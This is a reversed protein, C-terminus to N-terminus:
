RECVDYVAVLCSMNFPLPLAHRVDIRISDDAGSLMNLKVVESKPVIARDMDDFLVDRSCIEQWRDEGARIEGGISNYVRIKVTGVSKARLMSMGNQTEIEIPMPSLLSEYALGAVVKPAPHDLTVKGDEVVQDRHEAEDVLIDVTMGELHDLGSIETINEGEASVGSDVFFFHQHGQITRSELVEVTVKNNRQVAFYVKNENDGPLTCVSLFNGQTDHRHWGIVEQDREYTLAALTGNGLVCWLISDPLQQLAAEVIGTETIHDALVTMDPSSYGNKEWQFVFERVKRSGQQVFLITDGVMNASLGNSGYVSQRKVQFNSPTLAHASDSAGLTWESDITGIVLADHQCMWCITNVTDSSITFDLADDDKSGILFNDWDGTKSAWVTQPRYSTGGFFMREEYFAVSRPFGRAYSWAGENWESTASTEGLKRIVEASAKKENTVGSIRVVGTTQFDPNVFLIRCLKLTGTDSAAYDKMQIRYLVDEQEEEGSTSTNSDKSSSYTRYDSWSTGGDFSRQITVSGSWTGHTTFTWYGFVELSDSVGDATFDYAIENAKRSAKPNISRAAPFEYGVYYNGDENRSIFKIKM